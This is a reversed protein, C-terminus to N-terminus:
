NKSSDGYQKGCYSCWKVNGGVTHVDKDVSIKQKKSLRLGLPHSTTLAWSKIGVGRSETRLGLTCGLGKVESAGGQEQWDGEWTQPRGGFWLGAGLAGSVAGLGGHERDMCPGPLGDVVSRRRCWWRGSDAWSQEGNEVGSWVGQERYWGAVQTWGAFMHLRSDIM